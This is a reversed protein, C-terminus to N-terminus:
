RLVHLKELSTELKKLEEFEKNIEREIVQKERLREGLERRALVCRKEIMFESGLVTVGM